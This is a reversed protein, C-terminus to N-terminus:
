AISKKRFRSKRLWQAAGRWGAGQRRRHCTRVNRGNQLRPCNFGESRDVFFHKDGLLPPCHLPGALSVASILPDSLFGCRTSRTLRPNLSLGLWFVVAAVLMAASLFNVALKDYPTAVRRFDNLRCFMAEILWRDRYRKEDHRIRRKRNSRGPIVPDTGAEKLAKRFSNADYGRDAVLRRYRIVHEKLLEAAKIDSTNGPTLTLAIPRGLLDGVAHIKTTQGGRSIGIAQM